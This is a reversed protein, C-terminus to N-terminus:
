LPPLVHWYDGDSLVLCHKGEFAFTIMDSTSGLAMAVHRTRNESDTVEVELISKGSTQSMYRIPKLRLRAGYSTKLADVLDTHSKLRPSELEYRQGHFGKLVAFDVIHYIWPLKWQDHIPPPNERSFIPSLTEPYELDDLYLDSLAQKVVAHDLRTLWARAQHAAAKHVANTASRRAIRSFLTRAEDTRSSALMHWATLSESVPRFPSAPHSRSFESCAAALQEHHKPTQSHVKWLSILAREDDTSQAALSSKLVMAILIAVSPLKM